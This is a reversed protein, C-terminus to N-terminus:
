FCKGSTKTIKKFAFHTKPLLFSIGIRLPDPWTAIGVNPGLSGGQTSEAQLSAGTRTRDRLAVAVAAMRSGSAGQPERTGLYRTARGRLAAQWKSACRDQVAGDDALRLSAAGRFPGLAPARLRGKGHAKGAVRKGRCRRRGLARQKWRRCALGHAAVLSEAIRYLAM